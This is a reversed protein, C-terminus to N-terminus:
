AVRAPETDLPNEVTERPIRNQRDWALAYARFTANFCHLAYVLGPTGDRFGGEVFYRRLARTTPKVFLDRPRVQTGAEILADARMTSYRISKHVREDYSEDNLHWMPAELQHLSPEPVTFVVNEHLAREFRHRGRRALWTKNWTKWSRGRMPRHLFHNRLRFFYGDAGEAGIRSRIEEVLEAPARMDVDMHLLWDSTAAEGAANRQAAFGGVPELARDVVRVTVRDPVEAEAIVEATRDTTGADLVIVVEDCFATVNALFGGIDREEDRAITCAALTM